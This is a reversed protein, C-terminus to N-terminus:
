FGQSALSAQRKHLDGRRVHRVSWRHTDVLLEMERNLERLWDPAGDARDNVSKQDAGIRLTTLATAVDTTIRDYRACLAWFGMSRFKEIMSRAAASDVQATAPGKQTVHEKGQWSVTGDADLTVTYVPCNGFCSTREISLTMTACNNHLRSM